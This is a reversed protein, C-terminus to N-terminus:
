HEAWSSPIRRAGADASTTVTVGTQNTEGM